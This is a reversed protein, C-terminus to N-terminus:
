IFHSSETDGMCSFHAQINRTSGDKCRVTAELPEIDAGTRMATEVRAQWESRVAQRYAEDPYALRWWHAVDPVDEITYGFVATFKDNVLENMQELGRTVIMAVSSRQVLRREASGLLKEEEQKREPIAM